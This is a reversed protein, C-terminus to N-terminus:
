PCLANNAKSPEALIDASREPLIDAGRRARVAAGRRLGVGGGIVAVDYLGEAVRGAGSM